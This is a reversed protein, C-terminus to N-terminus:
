GLRETLFVFFDRVSEFREKWDVGSITYEITMESVFRFVRGSKNAATVLSDPSVRTRESFVLYLSNRTIDVKEIGLKKALLKIRYMALLKDAQEPIPGFRDRMENEMEDLEDMSSVSGLRNYLEIRGGLDPVYGPELRGQFNLNLESDFRDTVPEGKLEHITDELMQCYMDFGVADIQGSQQAGLLNGAGRIEMDRAALKFGSGLESLDEIAVLRKRATETLAAQGPILMYGYARHRDRGVRGRLQYLQALGFHDARNIIITNASQVDLGSEIITTCVLIDASRDVFEGMVQELEKEPM